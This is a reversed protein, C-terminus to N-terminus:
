EVPTSLNAGLSKCRYVSYLPFLRWLKEATMLRLRLVTPFWALAREGAGGMTLGLSLVLYGLVVILKSNVGANRERMDM